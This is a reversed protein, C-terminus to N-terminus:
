CTASTESPHSSLLRYVERAIFRKLCRLIERKTKGEGTRKQAYAKTAPDWRLRSLAIRFLACNAQRNGGRNLRHRTRNGSSAPIPCAGCLAAFAAESRLREPNDGAAILLAAANDAGIGQAARLSPSVAQTIHDLEQALSDIESELHHIRCALSRLAQRAASSPCGVAIAPLVRCQVLLEKSPLHQLTERLEAPAAILFAKLQSIARTRCRVASDRTSKLMRLMEAEANSTKAVATATGALLARAAQEADISDDKGRLRRAQRNPRNVERVQHGASQLYRSLGAGYSGTGEIGFLLGPRQNSVLELTWELLAEYGATCAPLHMEGLFSGQSNLAVAVHFDRHTDVGVMISQTLVAVM